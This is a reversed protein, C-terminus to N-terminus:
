CVRPTSVRINIYEEMAGLMGEISLIESLLHSLTGNSCNFLNYTNMEFFGIKSIFLDLNNMKFFRIKSIFLDLNNMEFFEIKSIFLDLNNMEFFWIKSIFLDVNDRLIKM